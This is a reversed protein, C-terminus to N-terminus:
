GNKFVLSVFRLPDVAVMTRKGYTLPRLSVASKKYAVVPTAIQDVASVPIPIIAEAAAVSRGRKRLRRPRLLKRPAADEPPVRLHVEFIVGDLAPYTLDVDRVPFTSIPKLDSMPCVPPMVVVM